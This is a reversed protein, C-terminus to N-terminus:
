INAVIKEKLIDKINHGHVIHLLKLNMFLVLILVDKKKQFTCHKEICTKRVKCCFKRRGYKGVIKMKCGHHFTTKIELGYFQCKKPGNRRVNGYHFHVWNCCYRQKINKKKKGKKELLL